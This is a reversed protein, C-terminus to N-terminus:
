GRHSGSSPAEHDVTRAAQVAGVVVLVGMSAAAVSVLVVSWTESPRLTFLLAAAGVLVCGSSWISWACKKHAVRWTEDSKMIASTRMGIVYNRKLRGRAAAWGGWVLVLGCVALFVALDVHLFTLEDAPMAGM